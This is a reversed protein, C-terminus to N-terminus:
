AVVIETGHYAASAGHAAGHHFHLHYGLPVICGFAHMLYVEDDSGVHWYEFAYVIDEIARQRCCLYHFADAMM